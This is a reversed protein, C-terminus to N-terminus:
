EGFAWLNRLRLTEIFPRMYTAPIKMLIKVARTTTTCLKSVVFVFVGGSFGALREPLRKFATTFLAALTQLYSDLGACVRM